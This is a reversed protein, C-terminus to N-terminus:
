QGRESRTKRRVTTSSRKSTTSVSCRDKLASAPPRTCTGDRFDDDPQPEGYLREGSVFEFMRDTWGVAIQIIDHM